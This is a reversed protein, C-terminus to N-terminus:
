GEAAGVRRRGCKLLDYLAGRHVLDQARFKAHVLDVRINLCIDHFPRVQHFELTVEADGFSEKSMM